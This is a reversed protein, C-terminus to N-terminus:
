SPKHSLGPRESAARGFALNRDLRVTGVETPMAGSRPAGVGEGELFSLLFSSLDRKWMLPVLELLTM